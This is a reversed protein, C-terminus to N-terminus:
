DEFRAKLFGNEVLMVRIEKQTMEEIDQLDEERM